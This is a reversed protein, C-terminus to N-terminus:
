YNNDNNNDNDVTRDDGSIGRGTAGKDGDRARGLMLIEEMRDPPVDMNIRYRVNACPSSFQARRYTGERKRRRRQQDYTQAPPPVNHEDIRKGRKRRRRDGKHCTSMSVNGGKITRAGGLKIHENLRGGNGNDDNDIGMTVHARRYAGGNGNDDDDIGM